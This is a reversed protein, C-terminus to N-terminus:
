AQSNTSAHGDSIDYLVYLENGGKFKPYFGGTKYLEGLCQSVYLFLTTLPNAIYQCLCM